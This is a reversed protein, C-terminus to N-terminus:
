KVAGLALVYKPKKEIRGNEGGYQGRDELAELLEPALEQVAELSTYYYIRLEVTSSNEEGNLLYTIMYDREFGDFLEMEENSQISSLTEYINIAGTNGEETIVFALDSPTADYSGITSRQDEGNFYPNVTSDGEIFNVIEEPYDVGTILLTTQCVTKKDDSIYTIYYMVGSASASVNVIGKDPSIDLGSPYAAFHGDPVNSDAFEPTLFKAEGPSVVGDGYKFACAEADPEDIFIQTTCVVESDKIRFSVTYEKGYDSANVDIVGTTSDIALGDPSASFAGTPAEDSFVPTVLQDGPMGNPTYVLKEYSFACPEIGDDECDCFYECSSFLFVLAFATALNKHLKHM